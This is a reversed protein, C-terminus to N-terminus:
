PAGGDELVDSACRCVGRDSWRIPQCVPGAPCDAIPACDAATECDARCECSGLDSGPYHTCTFLKRCTMGPNRFTCDAASVCPASRWDRCHCVPRDLGGLEPPYMMCENGQPCTKKCEGRPPPCPEDLRLVINNWVAKFPTSCGDCGALLIALSLLATAPTWRRKRARVPM